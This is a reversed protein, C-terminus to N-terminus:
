TVSTIISIHACIFVNLWGDTVPFRIESKGNTNNYIIGIALLFIYYRHIMKCCSVVYPPYTIHLQDYVSSTPVSQTLLFDVWTIQDPQADTGNSTQDYSFVFWLNNCPLKRPYFMIDTALGVDFSSPLVSTM